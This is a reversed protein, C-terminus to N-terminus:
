DRQHLYTEGGNIDGTVGANLFYVGCKLPV